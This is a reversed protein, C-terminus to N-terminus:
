WDKDSTSSAFIKEWETPPMKLKSVM